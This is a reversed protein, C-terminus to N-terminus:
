QSLGDAQGQPAARQADSQPSQQGQDKAPVEVIKCVKPAARLRSGTEEEINVRECVKKKVMKQKASAPAEQQPPPATQAMAPAAPVAIMALLALCNRMM